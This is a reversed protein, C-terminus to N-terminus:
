SLLTLAHQVLLSHIQFRGAGVPELLGQGVLKRIIPTPDDVMWVAKMAGSDFTAPKPAFAGLYAFCDRTLEDLQATSRQLLAGVTPIVAGEARDLPAPEAFLKAGETIETILEVADLGMKWEENLLRGAVQLALPLCELDRVLELCAAFHSEVAAPALLRLLTLAEEETLVPLVYINEDPSRSSDFQALDNAVSTLQTTTLLACKSAIATRMFPLAHASNWVDDLILLMQKNGLLRALKQTAEDLEPVRLLDEAGFFRGWQA